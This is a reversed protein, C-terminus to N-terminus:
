DGVERTMTRVPRTVGSKLNASTICCGSAARVDNSARRGVVLGYTLGAAEESDSKPRVNGRPESDKRLVHLTHPGGYGCSRAIAVGRRMSMTARSRFTSASSAIQLICAPSHRVEYVHCAPRPSSMRCAPSQGGCVRAPLWSGLALAGGGPACTRITASDVLRAPRERCGGAVLAPNRM